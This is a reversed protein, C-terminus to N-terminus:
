NKRVLLAVATSSRSQEAQFVPRAFNPPQSAHHSMPLSTAKRGFPRPNSDRWKLVKPLDKVRLQRYRKPTFSRCLIRARDLAGRFLLQSSSASYFYGSLVFSYINYMYIYIHTCINIYIGMCGPGPQNHANPLSCTM